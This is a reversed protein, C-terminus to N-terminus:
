AETYFKRGEIIVKLSKGLRIEQPKVGAKGLLEKLMGYEDRDLYGVRQSKAVKQAESEPIEPKDKQKAM